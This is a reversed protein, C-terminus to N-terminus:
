QIFLEAQVVPPTVDRVTLVRFPMAHKTLHVKVAKTKTVATVPVKDRHEDTTSPDESSCAVTLNLLCFCVLGMKIFDLM